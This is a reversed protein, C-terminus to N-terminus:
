YIRADHKDYFQDKQWKFLSEYVIKLLHMESLKEALVWLLFVSCQDDHVDHWSLCCWSQGALSEPRIFVHWSTSFTALAIPVRMSDGWSGDNYLQV